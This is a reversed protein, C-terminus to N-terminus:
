LPPGSSLPMQDRENSYSQENKIKAISKERLNYLIAIRFKRLANKLGPSM